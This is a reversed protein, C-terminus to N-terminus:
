KGLKQSKIFASMEAKGATKIVLAMNDKSAYILYGSRQALQVCAKYLPEEDSAFKDYLTGKDSIVRNREGEWLIIQDTVNDPVSRDRKTCLPHTNEELFHIIQAASIGNKFAERISRRSIVAVMMNPLLCEPEAFLKVMEIHLASETYCYCKFNTEVIIFVNNSGADAAVGKLSKTGNKSESKVKKTPQGDVVSAPADHNIDVTRAAAALKEERSQGFVVNVGLSTPYFVNSNRPDMYVMGFSAFDQLLTRQTKDLHKTSCPTGPLCYSMKFLMQLVSEPESVQATYHRIFLWLQNHIDRLMFHYGVKTIKPAMKNRDMRMLGMSVLLKSVRESLNRSESSGIIFHLISAWRLRSAAEMEDADVEFSEIGPEQWPLKTTNTDSIVVMVQDCFARNLLLRGDTEVQVVKLAIMEDRASKLELRAEAQDAVCSEWLSWPQPERVTLLRMVMQKGLPPLRELVGLASWQCGRFLASVNEVALGGIFGFLDEDQVEDQGEVVMM